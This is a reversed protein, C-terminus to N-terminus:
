ARAARREFFDKVAVMARCDDENYAIIRQLSSEDEPHQLHENYWSISNVGSPDTDRWQFGLMKAINKIGYSHTPWDSYPVVLKSYLDYESAVYHDFVNEDLQYRDMLQRLTTREKHSYVYYVAEGAEALFTWFDRVTREEEDPHRAVFYQFPSEVGRDKILVGFLYTLNRTPDDEIDFYIERKGTPLTYGTRILPAGDLMVQARTKMRHLSAEGLGRIKRPPLTYEKIDMAAIDSITRLGAEKMQFKVKGVYFLGSPDSQKNVWRECRNHWGCLSCHSGLVPESTQSGSVLQKVEELGAEFAARFDAVVFEEIEGEVNIIRGTELATGQLRELLMSYFLMQFAYHDKFRKSNGREEWGMGAKIDIPEYCYDGFRSPRDFRKMLLDPRGVYIADKLVGQYILPVGEYMLRLTEAAGEDISFDQLDSYQIDGLTKLYKEETQLGLEWLLKVFPSVEGKEEPNGNSDLYVRHLCKTFNYLDLATIKMPTNDGM